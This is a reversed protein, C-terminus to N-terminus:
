GADVRQAAGAEGVRRLAVRTAVPGVLEFLVTTVVVVPVVAEAVEPARERLQLALGLGVGAQPLLTAGLWRRVEPDQGAATSGVAAGVLKGVTRLVVYATILALEERLPEVELAAGGLVFFVVLFPWEVREVARFPRYDGRDVNTVVVGVTVATLVLSVGLWAAFGVTLLVTGAADLLTPEGERVHRTIVAAPLGLLLGLLVAGLIEQTAGVVLPWPAGEGVVVAGVSLLVTFLVIALADALAVFGLLTRTLPGQAYNDRVVIVTAAPATSAAIGGLALAARADAGVLLLGGAVVVLSTVVAATVALLLLSAGYERVRDREFERGLLFGVMTLALDTAIPEWQERADPLVDLVAPGTLVGLLLLTSVRPVPTHRGLWDATLAGMLLAGLTLFTLTVDDV